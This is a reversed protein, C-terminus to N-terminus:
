IFHLKLAASVAAIKATPREAAAPDENAASGSDQL